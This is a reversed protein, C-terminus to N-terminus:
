LWIEGESRGEGIIIPMSLAIEPKVLFFIALKDGLWIFNIELNILTQDRLVESTFKDPELSYGM